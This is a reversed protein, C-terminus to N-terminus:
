QMWALQHRYEDHGRCVDAPLACQGCWDADDDLRLAPGGIVMGLPPELGAAVADGITTSLADAAHPDRRVLAAALDCQQLGDLALLTDALADIDPSAPMQAEDAGVRLVDAIVAVSRDAYSAIMGDAVVAAVRRLDSEVSQTVHPYVPVGSFRIDNSM